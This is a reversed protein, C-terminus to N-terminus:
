HYLTAESNKGFRDTIRTMGIGHDLTLLYKEKEPSSILMYNVSNILAEEGLCHVMLQDSQLRFEVVLDEDDSVFKEAKKSGESLGALHVQTKSFPLHVVASTDSWISRDPEGPIEFDARGNTDTVIELDMQPFEVVAPAELPSGTHLYLELKKEEEDWLLRIIVGKEESYLTAIRVFRQRTHAGMAALVIPANAMGNRAAKYPNLLIVHAADPTNERIEIDPLGRYYETFWVVVEKCPRCDYIHATIATLIDRNLEWPFQAYQELQTESPHKSKTFIM